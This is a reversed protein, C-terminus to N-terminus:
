PNITKKKHLRFMNFIFLAILLFFVSLVLGFFRIVDIEDTSTFILIGPYIGSLTSVWLSIRALKDFPKFCQTLSIITSILTLPLGILLGFIPYLLAMGATGGFYPGGLFFLSWFLSCAFIITGSIATLVFATRSGADAHKWLQKLSWKKFTVLQEGCEPCASEQELGERSYGCQCASIM